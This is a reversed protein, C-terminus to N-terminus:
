FYDAKALFTKGILKIIQICNEPPPLRTPAVKRFVSNVKFGPYRSIQVNRGWWPVQIRVRFVWKLVTTVIPQLSSLFKLRQRLFAWPEGKLPVKFNQILPLLHKWLQQKCGSHSRRASRRQHFSVLIWVVCIDQFRNYLFRVGADFWKICVLHGGKKLKKM